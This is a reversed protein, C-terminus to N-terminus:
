EEIFDLMKEMKVLKLEEYPEKYDVKSKRHKSFTVLNDSTLDGSVRILSTCRYHRAM